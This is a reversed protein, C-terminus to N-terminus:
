ASMLTLKMSRKNAGSSLEIEITNNERKVDFSDLQIIEFGYEENFPTEAPVFSEYLYGNYLYVRTEYGEGDINESLVLRTGHPSDDIRVSGKAGSRRIHMSVYNMAVRTNLCEDQLKNMRNFSGYGAAVLICTSAGFSLLLILICTMQIIAGRKSM